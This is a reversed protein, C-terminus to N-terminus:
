VQAIGEKKDSYLIYALIVTVVMCIVTGIVANMFNASTGGMYGMISLFAPGGGIMTLIGTHTIGIYFCGAFMGIMMAPMSSKYKLFIGYLSPESIGGVLATFAASFATGKLTANKSKLGVGFSLAAHAFNHMLAAPFFVYEIGREILMTMGIAGGALHTGTAVLFPIFMGIIAPAFPGAYKYLFDIVFGIINSVYTGLPAILSYTLPLMVLLTGFPEVIVRLMKPCHAVIFKEVYCMVFVSMFAPLVTSTYSTASVPIGFLTISEGSGVLALFDPHILMAGILGGLVPNGGNKSATNYGVFIPMFYFIADGVALMIGYTTSATNLWGVEGLLLAIGKLVGGAIMAPICSQVAGAIAAFFGFIAGKVTLKEKPVDNKSLEGRSIENGVIKVVADYLDYIEEGAIVQFQTGNVIVDVFGLKKANEIDARSTDKMRLRLRSMCHYCDSINDKGGACKVIEEALEDYNRKSM